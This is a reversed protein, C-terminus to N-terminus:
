VDVEIGETVEVIVDVDPPTPDSPTPSPKQARILVRNGPAHIPEFPRMV